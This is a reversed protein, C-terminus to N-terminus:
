NKSPKEGLAYAEFNRAVREVIAIALGARIVALAMTLFWYPRIDAEGHMRRSVWTCLAWWFDPSLAFFLALGAALYSWIAATRPAACRASFYYAVAAAFLFSSVDNVWRLGPLLWGHVSGADLPQVWWDKLWGLWTLWSVSWPAAGISHEFHAISIRVWFDPTSTAAPLYNTLCAALPASFYLPLLYLALRLWPFTVARFRGRAAMSHRTATLLMPELTGRQREGAWASAVFAVPLFVLALGGLGYTLAGVVVTASHRAFLIDEPLLGGRVTLKSMPGPFWDVLMWLIAGAALLALACWEPAFRAWVSPRGPPRAFPLDMMGRARRPPKRAATM